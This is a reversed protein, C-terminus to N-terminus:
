HISGQKRHLDSLSSRTKVVWVSDIPNENEFFQVSKVLHREAEAYNALLTHAEGLRLHVVATYRHESGYRAERIPLLENLIRIAESSKNQEILM